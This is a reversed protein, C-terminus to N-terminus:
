SRPLNWRFFSSLKYRQIIGLIEEPTKGDAYLSGVIAGMSTGSVAQPRIGYDELAKLVGIHAIGRAGGGSLTIGLRFETM